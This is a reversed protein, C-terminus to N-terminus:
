SELLNSVAHITGDENRVLSLVLPAVEYICDGGPIWYSEITYHITIFHGDDEVATVTPVGPFYADNHNSCFANEAEIYCWSEPITVDSLGIGFTERLAAELKSAPMIQLDMETLFGRDILTQRSEASIENWSGPHNVGLYFMYNLDIETPSEFLCGSARALWNPETDFSILAEYPTFDTIVPPTTPEAPLPQEIIDFEKTVSSQDEGTLLDVIRQSMLTGYWTYDLFLILKTYDRYEEESIVYYNMPAIDEDSFVMVQTEDEYFGVVAFHFGEKELKVPSRIVISTGGEPDSPGGEIQFEDLIPAGGLYLISEPPCPPEQATTTCASLCLVLALLLCLRKM